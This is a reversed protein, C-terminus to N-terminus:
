YRQLLSTDKVALKFSVIEPRKRIEPVKGTHIKLQSWKDENQSLWNPGHQWINANLFVHAKQGRSVLDAPNDQTPVHRWDRVNTHTITSDSCFHVKDIQMKLSQFTSQYLSVLLSAACLEIKSSYNTKSTCSAIKLLNILCPSKRSRRNVSPLRM